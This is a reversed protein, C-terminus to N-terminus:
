FHLRVWLPRHDSVAVDHVVGCEVPALGRAYVHDLAFERRGRRLTPGAGASVRDAGATRMATDVAAVGRRTLTNFDGGVVLARNASRANLRAISDFQRRRKSPSLTPVEAHVSYVVLATSGVAASAGVALRDQGQVAARHPLAVADPDSLPWRSLVANGFSRGTQRHPGLAAYVSDAGIRQAILETGTEDMEQLLVVDASRLPEITALADGAAAADLGFRINWTVVLLEDVPECSSLAARGSHATPHATPHVVTAEPRENVM